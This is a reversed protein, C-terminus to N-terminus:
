SLSCCKIGLLHLLMPSCLEKFWCQPGLPESYCLGWPGGSGGPLQQSLQHPRRPRHPGQRWDPSSGAGKERRPSMRLSTGLGLCLKCASFLGRLSAKLETQIVPTQSACPPQSLKEEREKTPNLTLCLMVFVCGSTKCPVKPFLGGETKELEGVKECFFCLGPSRSLNRM